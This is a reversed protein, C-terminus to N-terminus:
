CEANIHKIAEMNIRKSFNTILSQAGTQFEKLKIFYRPNKNIQVITKRDVKILTSLAMSFLKVEPRFKSFSIEVHLTKINFNGKFYKLM